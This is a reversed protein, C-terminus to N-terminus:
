CGKLLFTNQGVEFSQAFSIILSLHYAIFILLFRKM